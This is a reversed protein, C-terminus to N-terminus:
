QTWHNGVQIILLMLSLSAVAALVWVHVLLVLCCAESQSSKYLIHKSLNFRAAEQTDIKKSFMVM